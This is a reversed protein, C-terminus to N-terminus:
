AEVTIKAMNGPMSTIWTMIKPSTAALSQGLGYFSVMLISVLIASGAAQRTKSKM